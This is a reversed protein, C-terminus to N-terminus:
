SAALADAGSVIETLEQTIEAQRAANALRTNDDIIEGANLAFAAEAFPQVMDSPGFYGLDGGREAAGPEESYQSALQAFDAGARAQQLPM